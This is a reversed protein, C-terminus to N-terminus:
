NVAAKTNAVDTMLLSNDTDPTVTHKEEMRLFVQVKHIM